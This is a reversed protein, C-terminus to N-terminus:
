SDTSDCSGRSRQRDLWADLDGIDYGVARSGLRVFRPGRGLPRMKELTSRSLGVYEAAQSTRLIRRAVLEAIKGIRREM